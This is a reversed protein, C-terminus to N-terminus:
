KKKNKRAEQKQLKLQKRYAKYEQVLLREEELIMEIENEIEAYKKILEERRALYKIKRDYKIRQKAELKLQKARNQAVRSTTDKFDLKIQNEIKKTELKIEERLSKTNKYENKTEQLENEIELLKERLLKLKEERLKLHERREHEKVLTKARDYDKITKVKTPLKINLKRILAGAMAILLAVAVILTPIILWDFNTGVNESNKSNSNDDNKIETSGIIMTTDNSTAEQFDEKTITQINLNDFLAYGSTVANENGMSLMLATNIDNTASIYFTYTSYNNESVIGSFTEDLKDLKISAGFKYAKNTTEDIVINNEDQKAYFTRVSTTIKYYNGSKLTFSNSKMTYYADTINHIMLVNESTVFNADVLTYENINIIGAEVTGTKSNNTGSFNLATYINNSDSNDSKLSLDFIQLNSKRTYTNNSLANFEDETITELIMDDFFAFGKEQNEKTGMTFVLNCNKSDEYTKIAFTVEKWKENTNINKVFNITEGNATLLVGVNSYLLSQTNVLVKVTYYSNADLTFNGSKASQYGLVKNGMVFINNYDLDANSNYKSVPNSFPFTSSFKSSNVNIIGNFNNSNENEITIDKAVFPYTDNTTNIVIENFGANSIKSSETSGNFDVNKSNSSSSNSYDSSTIEVLKINDFLAYGSVYEDETGISLTLKAYSDKFVNGKIDFSYRIWNNTKSNTKSSTNIKDFSQSTVTFKESSFPNKQTLTVNAGGSIFNSTKIDLSLRYNKHQEILIDTSEFAVYNKEKNNLIFAYKNNNRNASTPNQEINSENENFNEGIGVIKYVSGVTSVGTSSPVQTFELNSNEFDGNSIGNAISVDKDQLAIEKYDVNINSLQSYYEKETLSYASINDFFVSGQSKFNEKSGLYLCLSVDQSTSNTKVYFRYEKWSGRTSINEIKSEAFKDLNDNSLYLSARSTISDFQTYIFCSIYYFGNEVLEFQSSKYGFSTNNERSNIMLVKTDKSTSPHSPNFDLKYKEENNKEFKSPETDIVGSITSGKTGVSSFSNPEGLTDNTSNTFNSNSITIAEINSDAFIEKTRSSLLSFSVLISQTLFILLIAIYLSLKKITNTKQM